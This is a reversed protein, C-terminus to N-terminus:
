ENSSLFSLCFAVIIGRLNTAALTYYFTSESTLHDTISTFTHKAYLNKGDSLEDFSQTILYDYWDTVRWNGWTWFIGVPAAEANWGAMIDNFHSASGQFNEEIVFHPAFWIEVKDKNKPRKGKPYGTNISLYQGADGGFESLDFEGDLPNALDAIRMVVMGEDSYPDPKYILKGNLFRPYDALQPTSHYIPNMHQDTLGLSLAMYTHINFPRSTTHAAKHDEEPEMAHTAFPTALTLAMIFSSSLLKLKRTMVFRM